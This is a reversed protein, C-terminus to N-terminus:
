REDLCDFQVFDAVDTAGADEVKTLEGALLGADALLLHAHLRGGFFLDPDAGLPGSVQSRLEISYLMQSRILLNCTQTRNSDRSFGARVRELPTKTKLHVVLTGGIEFPTM